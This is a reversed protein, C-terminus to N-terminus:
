YGSFEETRLDDSDVGSGELASRVHTVFGPPGALYYIPSRPAPLHRALLAADVHGVEGNWPRQSRDMGDMTPIFHFTPHISGVKELEELFAADEPRHNSYFLYIEHPLRQDAAHLVMSRFPTIGIGGALLVATKRADNHLTFSGSAPSLRVPAGIPASRLVRKFATDRLRTAVMLESASPPSAISFTRTDGESDTERPSVLSVDMAQGPRFAYGPPREFRFAMTGEAILDRGTLRSSVSLSSSETM